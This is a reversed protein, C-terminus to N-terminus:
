KFEVPSDGLNVVPKKQQNDKEFIGLHRGLLELAKAKDHTKIAIGDRTQKIESIAALKEKQIDATLEIYAIRAKRRVPRGKSNKETLVIDKVKVFDTTNAFAISRLENIVEEATVQAREAKKETLREVEAKVEPMALLESATVRASRAKYGAREAALQGNFDIVYQRCFEKRRKTLM